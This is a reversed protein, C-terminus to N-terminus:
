EVGNVKGEKVLLELIQKCAFADLRGSEIEFFASDALESVRFHCQTIIVYQENLTDVGKVRVEHRVYRSVATEQYVYRGQCAYANVLMVVNRSGIVAQQATDCSIM